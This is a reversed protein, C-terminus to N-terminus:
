SGAVIMMTGSSQDRDVDRYPCLLLMHVYPAILYTSIERLYINKRVLIRKLDKQTIAFFLM